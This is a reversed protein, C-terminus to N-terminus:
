FKVTQGVTLLNHDPDLVSFERQFWSKTELKGGDPINVGRTSWAAYLADVNDCRLYVQGYNELPNLTTHEFFHLEVGDKALLLYGPYDAAGVDTFGLYETYFRRTVAKDRMPLKPHIQLLAM